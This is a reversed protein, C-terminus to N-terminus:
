TIVKLSPLLVIVRLVLQKSKCTVELLISNTLIGYASLLMVQVDGRPSHFQYPYWICKTAHVQVNGRPSISNTLIGYASLLMSKCTVELLISNTLIGYASLLIQLDISSHFSLEQPLAVTVQVLM